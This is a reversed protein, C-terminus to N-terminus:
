QTGYGLDERIQDEAPQNGHALHNFVAAKLVAIDEAKRALNERVPELEARVIARTVWAYLGSLAGLAAVIAIVSDAMAATESM